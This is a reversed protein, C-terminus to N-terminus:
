RAEIPKPKAWVIVTIEAEDGPSLKRLAHQIEEFLEIRKGSTTTLELDKLNINAGARGRIRCENLKVFEIKPTSTKSREPKDSHEHARYITEQVTLYSETQELNLRNEIVHKAEAELFKKPVKNELLQAIELPLKGTEVLSRLEVSLKAATNLEETHDKLRSKATRLIEKMLSPSENAATRVENVLARVESALQKPVRVQEGIGLSIATDAMPGTPGKFKEALNERITRDAIGTVQSIREAISIGSKVRYPKDGPENQVLWEAFENYDNADSVRRRTNIILRAAFTQLGPAISTKIKPWKPDAEQRHKGDLMEGEKNLLIPGYQRTLRGIETESSSKLDVEETM